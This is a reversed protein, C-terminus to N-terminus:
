AAQGLHRAVLDVAEGVRTVEGLEDEPIRVDFREELLMVIEVLALSDAELDTALETEDGIASRDAELVEVCADCVADFIQQRTLTETNTTM